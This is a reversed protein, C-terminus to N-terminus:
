ASWMSFGTPRACASVAKASCAVRPYRGMRESAFLYEFSLSPDPLSSEQPVREIAAAWEFYSMELEANSRFAYALVSELPAEEPLTPLVRAEHRTSFVEGAHEVRAREEKTEAPAFVACGCLATLLVLERRM